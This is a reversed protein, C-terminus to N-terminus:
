ECEASICEGATIGDIDHIGDIINNKYVNRLGKKILVPPGTKAKKEQSARLLPHYWREQVAKRSAMPKAPKQNSSGHGFSQLAVVSLVM